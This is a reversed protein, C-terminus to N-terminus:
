RANNDIVNFAFPKKESTLDLVCVKSDGNKNIDAFVGEAVEEPIGAAGLLDVLGELTYPDFPGPCRGPEAASAAPAFLVLSAVTLLPALLRIKSM